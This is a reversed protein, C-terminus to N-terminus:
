QADMLKKINEEFNNNRIYANLAKTLFCGIPEKIDEAEDPWNQIDMGANIMAKLLDADGYTFENVMDWWLKALHQGEKGEPDANKEYLEKLKDFAENVDVSYSIDFLHLAFNKMQESNFYRMLFGYSNGRKMSEIIAVICEMNIETNKRTEDIAVDLMGVMNNLHEIQGILVKRQKRFVEELDAKNTNKLINKEIEDLSFGVSKLFLIQELRLIDEHTYKRRGSETVIPKLLNRGDYYQLTRITVGTIHALEGITLLGKKNEMDAM